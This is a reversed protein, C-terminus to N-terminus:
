YIMNANHKNSIEIKPARDSSMAIETQCAPALVEARGQGYVEAHVEAHM